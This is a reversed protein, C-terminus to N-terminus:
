SLVYKCYRSAIYGVTDCVFIDVKEMGPQKGGIGAREWKNHWIEYVLAVNVM